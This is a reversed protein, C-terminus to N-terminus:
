IWLCVDGPGWERGAATLSLPNGLPADRAHHLCQLKAGCCPTSLSLAGRFPHVAREEIVLREREPSGRCYCTLLRRTSGSASTVGGSQFLRQSTDKHFDRCSKGSRSPVKYEFCRGWFLESQPFRRLSALSPFLWWRLAPHMQLSPQM